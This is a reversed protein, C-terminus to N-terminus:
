VELFRYDYDEFNYKKHLEAILNKVFEATDSRLQIEVRLRTIEEQLEEKSVEQNFKLVRLVCPNGDGYKDAMIYVM